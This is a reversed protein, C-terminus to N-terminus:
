KNTHKVKMLADTRRNAADTAKEREKIKMLEISEKSILENGHKMKDLDIKDEHQNQKNLIEQLKLNNLTDQQQSDQIKLLYAYLEDPTSHTYSLSKMESQKEQSERNLQSEKSKFEQEQLLLDKQEQAQKARIDEEYKQKDQEKIDREIKLKKLEVMAESTTKTLIGTAKELLDAGMTNDNVILQNLLEKNDIDNLDDVIYIALDSISFDKGMTRFTHRVGDNTTYNLDKPDKEQLVKAFYLGTQRARKMIDKVRRYYHNIMNSTRQLGQTVSKGSQYPSIEGLSQSSLGLSSYFEEKIKQMLVMKNMVDSTKTLDIMQGYGQGLMLQSQGSIQNIDTSTPALGLDHALQAWKRLPHDGDDGLHESPIIGQNFAYFLGIENANLEMCRNGLFTYMIQWPESSEVLSLTETMQSSRGGHVPLITSMRRFPDKVQIEDKEVKLWITNTDANTSLVGVNKSAIDLKIATWSQTEYFWDLHEGNVLNDKTKEKTWTLDYEPKVNVKYDEDVLETFETGNVRYTLEGVKRPLKFYIVTKRILNYPIESGEYDGFTGHLADRIGGNYNTSNRFLDSAWRINNVTAEQHTGNPDSVLNTQYNQGTLITSWSELQDAQDPTLKHQGIISDLTEYTFTGFMLYQSADEDLPSKLYFCSREDVPVYKYDTGNYDVIIFPHDTVLQKELLKREIDKIRFKEDEINLVHNAWLEVDLRHDRQHYEQIKQSQSFIQMKAERTKQDLSDLSTEFLKTAQEILLNQLDRNRSEILTSTAEPNIAKVYLKTIMKDQQNMVSNFVPPVLPFFKIDLESIEHSHDQLNPVDLDELKTRIKNFTEKAVEFEEKNIKGYALEYNKVYRELKADVQQFGLYEYYRLQKKILELDKVEKKTFLIKRPNQNINKVGLSEEQIKFLQDIGNKTM